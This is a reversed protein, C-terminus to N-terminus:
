ASSEKLGKEIGLLRMLIGECDIGVAKRFLAPIDGRNLVSGPKTHEAM